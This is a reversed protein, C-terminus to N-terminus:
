FLLQPLLTRHRQVKENRASELPKNRERQPMSNAYHDLEADYQDLTEHKNTKEALRESYFYAKIPAISM